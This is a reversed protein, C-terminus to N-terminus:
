GARSREFAFGAFSQSVSMIEVVNVNVHAPLAACWHIAEAIDDGSLPKFGAYVAKARNTDGGFRVDSFETAVAGPEICTVRVGTGALDSRLNLSLQHVFAKTAGYVAGGAYPYTAAVSGLNIVHGRKRAVMGSLVARIAHLFGSVNTGIMVDWDPGSGEQVKELGLALGANNVLLDIEAWEPPLAAVCRALAEPDRVDVVASMASEGFELDLADLRDERRGTLLVRHGEHVFRRATAEGIGSTAGTILVIM